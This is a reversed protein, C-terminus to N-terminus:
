WCGLEAEFDHDGADSSAKEETMAWAIEWATAGGGRGDDAGYVNDVDVGKDGTVDDAEGDGDEDEDADEGKVKVEAKPKMKLMAKGSTNTVPMAMLMM